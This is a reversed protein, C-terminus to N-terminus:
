RSEPTVIHEETEPYQLRDQEMSYLLIAAYNIIDRLTDKMTEDKVKLVGGSKFYNTLRKFKDSLRVVIGFSGFERFNALPDGGGAYDHNKDKAVRLCTAFTDEMSNILPNGM